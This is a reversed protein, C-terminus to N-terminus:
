VPVETLLAAVTACLAPAALATLAAARSARGRLHRRTVIVAAVGVALVLTSAAAEAEGFWPGSDHATCAAEDRDFCALSDLESFLWSYLAMVAALGLLAGLELWALTGLWEDLSRPERWPRPGRGIPLQEGM